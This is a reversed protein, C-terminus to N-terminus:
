PTTQFSYRSTRVTQGFTDTSECAFYYTRNPTLGTLVVTHSTVLNPDLPTSYRYPGQARTDYFVQSTSPNNTEWTIVCTTSGPTAVVNMIVLDEPSSEIFVANSPGSEGAANFATVYYEFAYTTGGGPLQDTYTQGSTTGILAFPTGLLVDRRYVNYGDAGNSIAWSLDFYYRNGQRRRVGTLYAPAAPRLQFSGLLSVSENGAADASRVCYYYVSGPSLSGLEVSHVTVLAPDVPTSSGLSPTLGFEVRGTAPEDTAWSLVASNESLPTATVGSITPFTTDLIIDDSVLVSVNGARDRFRAWVTKPGDPGPLTWQATSGYDQWDSWTSGDDSFCMGEVTGSDDSAALNLTVTPSTAYAAGGQVAVAGEPATQDTFSVEYVLEVSYDGPPLDWGATVTLDRPYLQTGVTPALASALVVPSAGLLTWEGGGAPREAVTTEGGPRSTVTADLRWELDSLVHLVAAGPVTVPEGPVVEGLFVVGGGPSGDLNFTSLALSLTGLAAQASPSLLSPVLLAMGLLVLALGPAHRL